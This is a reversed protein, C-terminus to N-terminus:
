KHSAKQYFPRKVVELDVLANRVSVQLRTGLKSRDSRVYAMGVARELSPGFTGSTVFGVEEGESLVAAGHRPIARADGALFGVLKRAPGAEKEAVLIDRGIFSPKDWKVTWGLGAQVPTTTEDIDNGYLCYGMELRLTDRAGLGAPGVALDAGQTELREWFEAARAAPIVLEFGDEGTYGTRGVQLTAGDVMANMCTYYALDRIAEGAVRAVLEEAHPGQVAVLATEATRDTLTVGSPLHALMWARDKDANAANVIVLFHDGFNYILLDDLITGDPKCLPSYLAKGEPLVGVGNTVLEDLAARSGAGSVYFRGMHSVDFLGVSARVRRHEDVIGSYQMPMQWGAFDVLRAGRARHVANLPTTQPM